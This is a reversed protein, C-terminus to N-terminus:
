FRAIRVGICRLKNQELNFSFFPIITIPVDEAFFEEEKVGAM